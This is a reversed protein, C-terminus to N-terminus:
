AFAGLGGRPQLASLIKARERDYDLATGSWSGVKESALGSFQIALKVLDVQVRKRQDTDDVPTYTITVLPGWVRRANTGTRLREIRRGGHWTRYDDAALTTTTTDDTETEVISTFASAPRDLFLNRDGGELQVVIPADAFNAGFAAVIMEEADDLLRQVAADVLDTEVHQRLDAVSLLAV